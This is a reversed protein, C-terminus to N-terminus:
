SLGTKIMSAYSSGNAMMFDLVTILRKRLIDETKIKDNLNPLERRLIAELNTMIDQSYDKM